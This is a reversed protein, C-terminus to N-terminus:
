SALIRAAGLGYLNAVLQAVLMNTDQFFNPEHSYMAIIGVSNGNVIVPVAAYSRLGLASLWPDTQVYADKSIDPLMVINQNQLVWGPIGETFTYDRTAAEPLNKIGGKQSMQLCNTEANLEYLMVLSPRILRLITNTLEERITQLDQESLCIKAFSQLFWKYYYEESLDASTKKYRLYLYILGGFLPPYTVLIFIAVPDIGPIPELRGFAVIAALVGAGALLGIIALSGQGQQRGLCV